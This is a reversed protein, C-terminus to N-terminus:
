KDFQSLDLNEYDEDIEKKTLKVNNDSHIDLAKNENEEQKRQYEEQIKKLLAEEQYETYIDIFNMERHAKSGFPVNYKKRWWYDFPFDHWELIFRRVEDKLLNNTTLQNQNM